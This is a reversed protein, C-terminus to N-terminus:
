NNTIIKMSIILFMEEHSWSPEAPGASYFYFVVLYDGDLVCLLNLKFVLFGTQRALIFVLTVRYNGGM